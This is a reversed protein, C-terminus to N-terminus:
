RDEEDPTPDAPEASGTRLADVAAMLELWGSFGRERRGDGIRGTIPTRARDLLLTLRTPGAQHVGRGEWRVEVALM